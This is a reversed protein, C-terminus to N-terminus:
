GDGKAEARKIGARLESVNFNILLGLRLRTLKLYSLLQAVHVPAITSATKLEIVLKEGVLLDLRAEGVSHHKHEVRVPM